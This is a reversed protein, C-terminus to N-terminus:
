WKRKRVRDRISEGGTVGALTKWKAATGVADACLTCGEGGEKGREASGKTESGLLFFAM